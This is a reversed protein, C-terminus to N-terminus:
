EDSSSSERVLWNCEAQHAWGPPPFPQKVYSSSLSANSCYKSWTHWSNSKANSVVVMTLTTEESCPLFQVILCDWSKDVSILIHHHVWVLVQLLRCAHADPLLVRRGNKALFVTTQTTNHQALFFWQYFCLKPLSSQQHSRFASIYELNHITNSVMQHRHQRGLLDWRDGKGQLRRSTYKLSKQQAYFYPLILLLVAHISYEVRLVIRKSAAITTTSLMTLM